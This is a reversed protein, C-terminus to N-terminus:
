AGVAEREVRAPAAPRPAFADRAADYGKQFAAAFEEARIAANTRRIRDFERLAAGFTGAGTDSADVLHVLRMSAATLVRDRRVSRKVLRSVPRPDVQDRVLRAHSAAAVVSQEDSTLYGRRLTPGPVIKARGSM